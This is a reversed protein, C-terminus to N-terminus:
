EHNLEIIWGATAVASIILGVGTIYFTSILGWFIFLVGFALAVPWYTPEPMKQPDAPNPPYENKLQEPSLKM